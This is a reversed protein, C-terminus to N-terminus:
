KPLLERYDSIELAEALRQATRMSLRASPKELRSVNAQKLGARDALQAQTWRLRWREARIRSMKGAEVEALMERYQKERAAQLLGDFKPNRTRWRAVLDELSPLGALHRDFASQDAPTVAVSFVPMAPVELIFLCPESTTSFATTGSAWVVLRRDTQTLGANV